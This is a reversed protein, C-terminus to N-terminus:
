KDPDCDYFWPEPNKNWGIRWATLPDMIPPLPELFSAEGVDMISNPFRKRATKAGETKNAKDYLDWAGFCHLIEHAIDRWAYWSRFSTTSYNQYIEAGELYFKIENADDQTFARGNLISTNISTFLLILLNDCNTNNKVYDYLAEQNDYGIKRLFFNYGKGGGLGSAELIDKDLGYIEETFNVTIGYKLAQEKLWKLAQDKYELWRTKDEYLWPGPNMKDKYSSSSSIFCSLIFINGELTKASGSNMAQPHILFPCSLLLLLAFFLKKM